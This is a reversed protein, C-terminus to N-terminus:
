MRKKYNADKFTVTFRTGKKGNMEIKGLLQNALTIILQMGLSTTSKFDVGKPFGIGDDEVKLIYTGADDKKLEVIVNGKKEDPFAHKLSNSVLENIILGCPIATDIGLFMSEINTKLTIRGEAIGYSQLLHTVLQNVYSGFDISSLDRSGYLKEHIMFMSSVRDQSEKLSVLAKPDEIYASQLHLLSSIIQLNNKVRHHIEKLMVEKEELSRIVQEEAEKRETIDLIMSQRSLSGDTHYIPTCVEYYWRKNEPVYRELRVIKGKLVMDNNCWPCVVDKKYIATHCTEGTADRGIKDILKKNLFKVKYDPSNIYIFGDFGEVIARYREESEKIKKEALHKYLSIEITSHLEREELPKVIYGYPETVKARQLTTEDSYATLYVVPIDLLFRIKEAAEIGDIKGALRIDMLVLDPLTETAKEIAKEGTYVVAPVEYGLSELRERIEMSIIKDDEVVMIRAKEM